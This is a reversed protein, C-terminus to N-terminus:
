SAELYRELAVRGLASVSLGEREARATAAKALRRPVRFQVVPSKGDGGDLAPRGARVARRAETTNTM